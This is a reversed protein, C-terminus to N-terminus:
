TLKVTWFILFVALAAFAYMLTDLWRSRISLAMAQDAPLAARAIAAALLVAGLLYGGARVNAVLMLLLALGTGVAMATWPKGLPEVDKM